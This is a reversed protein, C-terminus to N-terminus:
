PCVRDVDPYADYKARFVLREETLPEPLAGAPKWLKENHRVARIVRGQRRVEEDKSISPHVTELDVNSDFLLDTVKQGVIDNFNEVFRNKQEQYTPSPLNKQAVSWILWNLDTRGLASPRSKQWNLLIKHGVRLDLESPGGWPGPPLGIGGLWEPIYWPLRMSKLIKSHTEIFIRMITPQLETPAERILTRCRTGINNIPDDQDDLGAKGQSRKLGLLLGMNVYKTRKWCQQRRVTRGDANKVEIEFRPVREFSTSNIDLFDQSRYTKGISEELGGFSTIQRWNNYLTKKSRIVVDDGNILMRSDKLLVPKNETVEIAWRCMAANALCLLPFSVVSGMLQGNQQPLAFVPECGVLRQKNKQSRIKAANWAEWAPNVIEHKTLGELFLQMEAEGLGICSGIEKALTESVWSKLNDTAAKYDGSLFEEDEMLQYGMANLVELETLKDGILRFTRHRRLTTHLFKWVPRLATQHLPPGKTIVRVKLAESLGLPEALVPEALAGKLVRIYFKEYAQKFDRDDVKIEHTWLFEDEGEPIIKEEDDRKSILEINLRGGPVRLGELLAPHELIEGLAGGRSRSRNYNASTSPCFPRVRDSWTMKETFIERVTRRLQEQMTHQSLLTEVKPHVHEEDAWAVLSRLPTHHPPRTLALFTEYEGKKLAAEDPRFMGKKSQKISVLFSEKNPGNLVTRAWRGAVGGLLFKPNDPATFKKEPLDLGKHASYYAALKWKFVTMWEGGASSVLDKWHALSRSLDFGTADFGYFKFISLLVNLNHEIATEAQKATSVREVM